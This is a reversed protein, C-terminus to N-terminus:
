CDISVAEDPPGPEFLFRYAPEKLMALQFPRKIWRPLM